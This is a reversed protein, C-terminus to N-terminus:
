CVENSQKETAREDSRWDDKRKIKKVVSVNRRIKVSRGVKIADDYDAIAIWHQKIIEWTNEAIEYDAKNNENMGNTFPAYRLTFVINEISAYANLLQWNTKYGIVRLWMNRQLRM